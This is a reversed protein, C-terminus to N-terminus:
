TLHPTRLGMLYFALHGLPPGSIGMYTQDKFLTTSIMLVHVEEDPESARNPLEAYTSHGMWIHCLLTFALIKTGIIASNSVLVTVFLVTSASLAQNQLSGSTNTSKILSPHDDSFVNLLTLMTTADFISGNILKHKAKVCENLVQHLWSKHYKLGFHNWSSRQTINLVNSTILKINLHTM